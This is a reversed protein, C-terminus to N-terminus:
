PLLSPVTVGFGWQGGGYKAYATSNNWGSDDFAPLHFNVPPTQANLTRWTGDTVFNVLTGSAHEVQASVLLGAPSPGVDWNFGVFALVNAGPLLQLVYRQAVTWDTETPSVAILNGNLWFAYSNDCTVVITAYIPLDGVPPNFTYRFARAQGPLSTGENTWIWSSSVFTVPPPMPAFSISSSGYPGVLTAGGWTNNEFYRPQAFALDCKNSLPATHWSGDTATVLTDITGDSFVIQCAAIFGGPKSFQSVTGVVAFLNSFGHLPLNIIPFSTIGGRGDIYFAM